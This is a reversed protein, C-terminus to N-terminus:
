KELEAYIYLPLFEQLRITSDPANKNENRCEYM